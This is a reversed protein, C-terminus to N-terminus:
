KPQEKKRKVGKQLMARLAKPDTPPPDPKADLAMYAMWETLEASDIRALLERVTM